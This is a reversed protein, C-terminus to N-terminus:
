NMRGMAKHREGPLIAQVVSYTTFFAPKGAPDPPEVSNTFNSMVLGYVHQQREWYERARKEWVPSTADDVSLFVQMAWTKVRLQGVHAPHALPRFVHNVAVTM